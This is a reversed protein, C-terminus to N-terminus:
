WCRRLNGSPIRRVGWGPSAAIALRRQKLMNETQKTLRDTLTAQSVSESGAQGSSAWASVDPTGGAEYVALAALLAIVDAKTAQYIAWLDHIDEQPTEAM